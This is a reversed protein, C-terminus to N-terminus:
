SQQYLVHARIEEGNAEALTDPDTIFRLVLSAGSHGALFDSLGSADPVVEVMSGAFTINAAVPHYNGSEKQALQVDPAVNFTAGTLFARTIKISQGVVAAVLQVEEVAGSALQEDTGSTPTNKGMALMGTINNLDDAGFAYSGGTACTLTLAGTGGGAAATAGKTLGAGNMATVLLDRLDNSDAAGTTDVWVSGNAPDTDNLTFVTSVGDINIQLTGSDTEPDSFGSFTLELPGPPAAPVLPSTHATVAGNAFVLSAGGGGAALAAALAANDEPDGTIDAFAPAGSSSGPPFFIPM